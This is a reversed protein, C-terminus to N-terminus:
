FRRRGGYEDGPGLGEGALMQLTPYVSGPSPRWRGGSREEIQQIIESGHMPREALLGLVPPRLDRPGPPGWAPLAPRALCAPDSAPTSGSARATVTGARGASGAVASAASAAS